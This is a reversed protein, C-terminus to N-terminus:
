RATTPWTRPVGDPWPRSPRPQWRRRAPPPTRRSASRGVSCCRSTTSAPLEDLVCPLATVEPAHTHVVALADHEAHVGLHLDVESTPRLHGAVVRGGRGIVTVDDPAVRGPDVGDPTVAVHGDVLVSVSGATGVILGAAALRRSAVSVAARAQDLHTTM